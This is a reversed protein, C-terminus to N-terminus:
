VPAYLLVMSPRQHWTFQLQLCQIPRGFGFQWSVKMLEVPIFEMLLPSGLKTFRTGHDNRVLQWWVKDQVIYAVDVQHDIVRFVKNVRLSSCVAVGYLAEPTLYVSASPMSYSSWLWVALIGEHAWSSYVGDLPSGPLCTGDRTTGCLPFREVSSVRFCAWVFLEKLLWWIFFFDIVM